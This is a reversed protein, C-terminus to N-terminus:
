FNALVADVVLLWSLRLAVPMYADVAFTHALHWTLLLILIPQPWSYFLVLM